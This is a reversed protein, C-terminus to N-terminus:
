CIELKKDHKSPVIFLIDIMLILIFSLSNNIIFSLTFGVMFLTLAMKLRRHLMNNIQHVQKSHYLFNHKRVYQWNVYLLGIGM